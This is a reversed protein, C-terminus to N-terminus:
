PVVTVYMTGAGTLHSHCYILTNTVAGSATLDYEGGLGM